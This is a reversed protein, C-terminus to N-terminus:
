FKVLLIEESSLHHKRKELMLNKQSTAFLDKLYDRVAQIDRKIIERFKQKHQSTTKYFKLISLMQGTYKWIIGMFNVAIEWNVLIYLLTAYLYCEFRYKKMKKIKSLHCFSKWAKFRLEIQWRLRYLTRIHETPIWKESVNTIFLNLAAYVKYEESLQRGKKRAEKRATAIRKSVIKEPLIEIILRVSLKKEGIYIPLEMHSLKAKDMKEHIIKLNLKEFDGEATKQYLNTKPKMRSIFYAEREHIGELVKCTYYGLDRIILSGKEVQEVTQAADTQDQRLGDTPNIDSVRGTLLDYEFQTHVGAGSASGSSGPYSEKLESPIQFRTSDKIKASSFHKLCEVNISRTLQACLQLEILKKIFAVSSKTFREQLSQKRIDVKHTLDLDTVHDNLSMQGNDLDKFLLMDLFLQPSLKSKRQQFGTERAIACLRKESFM